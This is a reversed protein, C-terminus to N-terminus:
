SNLDTLIHYSFYFGFFAWFENRTYNDSDVFQECNNM